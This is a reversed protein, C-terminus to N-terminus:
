AKRGAWRDRVLTAPDFTQAAPVDPNAARVFIRTQELQATSFRADPSYIRRFRRRVDLYSSREDAPLGLADAMAEATQSAIWGVARRILEVMRAAVEPNREVHDERAILSGRLFGAGPVSRADEERGTSFLLRALGAAELRLGIPEDCMTADVTRSQFVASQTEWNQGAAVMRVQTPAIGASRLVLDALQTSTTRTALSNSHVGLVRGRLDAPKRIIAALDSRVLLSYLPLDDIAALAVLPLGQVRALAAAPLGFVAYDANGTDLEKIAVGGGSVFRLRLSVGVARDLGLRTALVLPDSITGGPGPVALRVEQPDRAFALRPLAVAAAGGALLCRRSTKVDM